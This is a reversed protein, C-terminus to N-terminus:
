PILTSPLPPDRHKINNQHELFGYIYGSVLVRTPRLNVLPHCSTFQICADAHTSYLLDVGLRRWDLIESPFRFICPSLYWSCCFVQLLNCCLTGWNKRKGRHTSPGQLLEERITSICHSTSLIRTKRTRCFFGTSSPLTFIFINTHPKRDWLLRKYIYKM